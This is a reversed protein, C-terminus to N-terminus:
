GNSKSTQRPQRVRRKPIPLGSKVDAEESWFTQIDEPTPKASKGKMRTEVKEMASRLFVVNRYMNPDSERESQLLADCDACLNFVWYGFSDWVDTDDLYKRRVLMGVIEFFDLLRYASPSVTSQSGRNIAVSRRTSILPESEFQSILHLLHEVQATSRMTMLQNRTFVAAAFAIVALVASALATLTEASAEHLSSSIVLLPAYM